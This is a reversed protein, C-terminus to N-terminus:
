ETVHTYTFTAALKNLLQKAVGPVDVGRLYNKYPEFALGALAQLLLLALVAAICKRMMAVENRRYASYGM